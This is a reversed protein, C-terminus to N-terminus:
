VHSEELAAREGVPTRLVSKVEAIAIVPVFRAFLMFLSFFLGLSGIFTGVDWATPAFYRWNTPLFDQALSTIIIVYREFWMGINVIISVLFLILLNRRASRFWFILPAICNCFVITWGA